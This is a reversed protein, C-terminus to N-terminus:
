VHETDKKFVGLLLRGVVGIVVDLLVALKLGLQLAALEAVLEQQISLEMLALDTLVTLVVPKQV